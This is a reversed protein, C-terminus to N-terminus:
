VKKFTIGALLTDGKIEQTLFKGLYQPGTNYADSDQLCYVWKAGERVLPLYEYEQASAGVLAMQAAIFLVIRKM